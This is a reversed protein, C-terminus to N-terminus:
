KAHEALWRAVSDEHNAGIVETAVAKLEPVANAVAYCEDAVRFMSIDNLGDGFVVLRDCGWLQKLHLIANAKTAQRPMIECWYDKSYLEEHFICNFRPDEKLAEYLPEVETKTGICTFYFVEGEYLDAGRHLPRFRKDGARSRYYAQIGPNENEIIWSVKEVGDVSAYVLPHIDLRELHSRIDEVEQSDFSHSLLTEHTKPDIILGGNYVVVPGSTNVNPAVTSASSLSRATAYTFLIGRELLADIIRASNETVRMEPNLLTGDLDSVYLTKSLNM